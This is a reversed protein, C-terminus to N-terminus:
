GPNRNLGPGLQLPVQTANTPLPNAPVLAYIGHLLSVYEALPAWGISSTWKQRTMPLVTNGQLQVGEWRPSHPSRM